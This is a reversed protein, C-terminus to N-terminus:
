GCSAPVVLMYKYGQLLGAPVLVGGTSLSCITKNLLGGSFFNLLALGAVMRCEELQAQLDALELITSDRENELEQRNIEDRQRMFDRQLNDLQSTIVQSQNELVALEEMVAAPVGLHHTATMLGRSVNDIRHEIDTQLSSVTNQLDELLGEAHRLEQQIQLLSSITLGEDHSPM